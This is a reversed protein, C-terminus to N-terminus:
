YVPQNPFLENYSEALDDPDMAAIQRTLREIAENRSIAAMNQRRFRPGGNRTDVENIIGGTVRPTFPVIGAHALATCVEGPWFGIRPFNEGNGSWSCRATTVASISVSGRLERFGAQIDGNFVERVLAPYAPEPQPGGYDEAGEPTWTQHGLFRHTM